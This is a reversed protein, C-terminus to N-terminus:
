SSAVPPGCLRSLIKTHFLTTVTHIENKHYFERTGPLDLSSIRTPIISGCSVVIYELIDVEGTKGDRCSSDNEFHCLMIVAMTETSNM